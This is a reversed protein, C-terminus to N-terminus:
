TDIDFRKSDFRKSGQCAAFFPDFAWYAEDFM